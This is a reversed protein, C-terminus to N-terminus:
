FKLIFTVAPKSSRRPQDGGRLDTSGRKRGYINAFGVGVSAIPALDHSVLIGRMLPVPRPVGVEDSLRLDITRSKAVSAVDQTVLLAQMPQANAAAAPVLLGAAAIALWLRM